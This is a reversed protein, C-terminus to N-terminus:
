RRHAARREGAAGGGHPGGARRAPVALPPLGRHAPHARRPDGGSALALVLDERHSHGGRAAHDLVQGFRDAPGVRQGARGGVAGRGGERLPQPAGGGRRRLEVPLRGGDRDRPRSGPHADAPHVREDPIEKAGPSSPSSPSTASTAWSRSSSSSAPSRKARAGRKSPTSVTTSSRCS